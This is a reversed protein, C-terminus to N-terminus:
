KKALIQETEGLLSIGFDDLQESVQLTRLMERCRVLQPPIQAEQDQGQLIKATQLYGNALFEQWAPNARNSELLREFIECSQQYDRLGDEPKQLAILTEGVRQLALAFDQCWMSNNQDSQALRQCIQLSNAYYQLAKDLQGDAKLLDGVRGLCVALDNQYAMNDPEEDCLKQFIARGRESTNLADEPRDFDAEVSGLNALGLAVDRQRKRNAPEADAMRQAIELSQQYYKAAAQPRGEARLVGGIHDLSIALDRHLGGNAPDENLLKQVSDLQENYFDLAEPLKGEVELAYGTRELSALLSRRFAPNAPNLDVLKRAVDLAGKYSGTARDPIGVNVYLEGLRNFIDSLLLWRGSDNPDKEVLTQVVSREREYWGIAESWGQKTFCVNGLKSLSTVLRSKRALNEPDQDVLEELTQTASQYSSIAPDLKKLSVQIDGITQLEQVLHDSWRTREQNEKLFRRIIQCAEQRSNLAEVLKGEDRLLDAQDDLASVRLVSIAADRSNGGTERNYSEIGRLAGDLLDMRRVPNLNDGIDAVITHVMSEARFRAGIAQRMVRQAETKEAIAVRRADEFHHYRHFSVSGFVIAAVLAGSISFVTKAVFRREKRGQIRIQWLWDYVYSRIDMGLAEGFRHFFHDAQTLAEGRPFVHETIPQAFRQHFTQRLLREFIEGFEKTDRYRNISTTFKGQRNVGFRNWDRLFGELTSWKFNNQESGAVTQDINESDKTFLLFDPIHGLQPTHATVVEQCINPGPSASRGSNTETNSSQEGILCVVLDIREANPVFFDQASGQNNRHCYLELEVEDTYDESVRKVIEGAREWEFRADDPVSMLIRYFPM